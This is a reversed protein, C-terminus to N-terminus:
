RTVPQCGRVWRLALLLLRCKTLNNEVLFTVFLRVNSLYGM